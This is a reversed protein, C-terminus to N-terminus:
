PIIEEVINIRGHQNVPRPNTVAYHSRIMLVPHTTMEEIVQGAVGDLSVDGTRQSLPAGLILLDHGGLQMQNTIEDSVNGSRIAIHAPVGLVELTRVGSMLFRQARDRLEGKQGTAPIISLLTVDAGLHRLFRGAFLVDEKGPEGGTVCVLAHAPEPHAAPVLLVHHDGSRLISQTLAVRNSTGKGLGLIVLDYPQREIEQAVAVDAEEPTARVELQALGSGLKEKAGQLYVQQSEASAGYGLITVRAHALRAIQGGVALAAQSVESGDTLILFSLGPHVLAHIRRVGVKVKEGPELPLRRAVDQTRTVEILVADEGFAVPPAIPRVGPIPPLRLRLREFSGSFTTQEVEGQGLQPSALTENTRALAV